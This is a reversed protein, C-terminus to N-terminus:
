AWTFAVGIADGWFLSMGRLMVEQGSSQSVIKNGSTGLAGYVSVPGIRLPKAQDYSTAAWAVCCFAGLLFILKKMPIM